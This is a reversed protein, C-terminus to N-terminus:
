CAGCVAADYTSCIDRGVTWGVTTYTKYSKRQTQCDRMDQLNNYFTNLLATVATAAPALGRRGRWEKESVQLSNAFVSQPEWSRTQLSYPRIGPSASFESSRREWQRIMGVVFRSPCSITGVLRSARM